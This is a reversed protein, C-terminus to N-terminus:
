RAVEWTTVTGEADKIKLVIEMAALEDRIRDSEKFNKALRASLRADVLQQIKEDAEERSGRILTLAGSNSQEFTLGDKTLSEALAAITAASAGNAIAARLRQVVPEYQGIAVDGLNLASVGSRFLGPKDLKKFGLFKLNAAFILKDRTEGRKAAQHM